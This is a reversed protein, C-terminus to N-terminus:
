AEERKEKGGDDVAGEGRVDEATGRARALALTKYSIGIKFM